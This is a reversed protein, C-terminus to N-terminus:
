DFILAKSALKPRGRRRKPLLPEDDVDKEPLEIANFKFALSIIHKCMFNRLFSPCTCVATQWNEINEDIM